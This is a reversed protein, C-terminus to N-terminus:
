PQKPKKKAPEEGFLEDLGDVLKRYFDKNNKTTNGAKVDEYFRKRYRTEDKLATTVGEGTYNFQVTNTISIKAAESVVDQNTGMFTFVWGKQELQGIINAITQRTYEESANESGDTLISCLVTYDKEGELAYRLKNTAHGIADFLPTMANPQYNADTLEHVALAEGLPIIEKIGMSNFTFFNIYHQLSDDQKNETVISQMLENFGSLIAPKIAAMSGSEDLIILNYIKKM